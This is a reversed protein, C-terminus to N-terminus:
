AEHPYSSIDKQTATRPVGLVDYHDKARAM